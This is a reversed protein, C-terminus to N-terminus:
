SMEGSVAKSTEESGRTTTELLEGVRRAGEEIIKVLRLQNGALAGMRGSLLLESAGTISTLPSRLDHRVRSLIKNLGPAETLAASVDDLVIGTAPDGDQGVAFISVSLCRVRDGRTFVVLDKLLGGSERHQRYREVIESVLSPQDDLDLALLDNNTLDCDLIERGARNHLRVRGAEDVLCLGPEMQQLVLQAFGPM